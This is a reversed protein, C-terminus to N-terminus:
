SSPRIILVCYLLRCACKRPAETQDYSKGPLNFQANAAVRHSLVGFRRGLLPSRVLLHKPPSAMFLPDILRRPSKFDDVATAAPSTSDGAIMPRASAAVIFIFHEEESGL